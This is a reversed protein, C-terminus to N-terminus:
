TGSKLEEVVDALPIFTSDLIDAWAWYKDQALRKQIQYEKMGAKTIRYERRDPGREGNRRPRVMKSSVFGRDEARDLAVYISGRKLVGNSKKVIELGYMPGFKMLLFLIAAENTM